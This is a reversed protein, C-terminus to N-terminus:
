LPTGTKTTGNYVGLAQMAVHKADGGLHAYVVPSGFSMPRTDTRRGPHPSWGAYCALTPIKFIPAWLTTGTAGGVHLSGHCIVALTTMADMEERWLPIVNDGALPMKDASSPLGLLVVPMAGRMSVALERWWSAPANRYKDYGADFLPQCTVFKTPADYKKLLELARAMAEQTPRITPNVTKHVMLWRWIRWMTVHYLTQGTPRPIHEGVHEVVWLEDAISRFLWKGPLARSHETGPMVSDEVVVLRRGPNKLRWDALWIHAAARDGIRFAGGYWGAGRPKYRAGMDFFAPASTRDGLTIKKM